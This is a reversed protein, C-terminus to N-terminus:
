VGRQVPCLDRSCRASGNASTIRRPVPLPYRGRHDQAQRPVLRKAMTEHPVLFASRDRSYHARRALAVDAGGAGRDPPGPPLLHLDASAPRREIGSDDDSRHAHAAAPRDRRGGQAQRESPSYTAARDPCPQAGDDQVLRRPQSPGTARGASSRVSSRTRPASRSSSRLQPHGPDPVRCRAGVRHPVGRCRRAQADALDGVRAQGRDHRELRCPIRSAIEIAEDLDACEIIYFGAIQEKTEAFPRDAVVLAEDRVRVTTGAIDAAPARARRSARGQTTQFAMFQAIHREADANTMEANEEVCVLLAYRMPTDGRTTSATEPIPIASVPSRLAGRDGIAVDSPDQWAAGGARVRDSRGHVGGRRAYRGGADESRREDIVHVQPALAGRAMDYDHIGWADVHARAVRCRSTQLSSM